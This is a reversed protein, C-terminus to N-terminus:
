MRLRAGGLVCVPQWATTSRASVAENLLVSFSGHRPALQVLQLHSICRQVREAHDESLMGCVAGDGPQLQLQGGVAPHGGRGLQLPVRWCGAMRVPQQLRKDRNRGAGAAWLGVHRHRPMLRAQSLATSNTHLRLRPAGNSSTSAGRTQQGCAGMSAYAQARHHSHCNFSLCLACASTSPLRSLIGLAKSTGRDATPLRQQGLSTSVLVVSCQAPVAATKHQIACSSQGSALQHDCAYLRNGGALAPSM